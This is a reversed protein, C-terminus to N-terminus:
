KVALFLYRNISFFFAGNHALTEIDTFWARADAEIIGQRGIVYDRIGRPMGWAADFKLMDNINAM